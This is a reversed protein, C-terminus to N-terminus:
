VRTVLLHPYKSSSHICPTEIQGMRAIKCSGFLEESLFTNKVSSGSFIDIKSIQLGMVGLFFELLYFIEHLLREVRNLNAM